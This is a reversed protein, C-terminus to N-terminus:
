NRQKALPQARELNGAYNAFSGFYNSKWHQPFSINPKNHMKAHYSSLILQASMCFTFRRVRQFVFLPVNYSSLRYTSQTVTIHLNFRTRFCCFKYAQNVRIFSLSREFNIYIGDRYLINFIDVPWYIYAIYKTCPLLVIDVLYISLDNHM